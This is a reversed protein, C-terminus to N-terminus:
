EHRLALAPEARAVRWAQGLVTLVSIILSGATAAAFYRPSLAIRQDFGALWGRMLMWSIPWAILNAILVPRVFQGVLLVLM